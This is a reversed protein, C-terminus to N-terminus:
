YFQSFIPHTFLHKVETKESAKIPSLASKSKKAGVGKGKTGQLM